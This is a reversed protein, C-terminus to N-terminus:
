GRRVIRPRVLVIVARFRRSRSAKRGAWAVRPALRPSSSVPRPYSSPASFRRHGGATKGQRSAQGDPHFPLGNSPHPSSSPHILHASSFPASYIVEGPIAAEGPHFAGAPSIRRSPSPCSSCCPAVPVSHPSSHSGCAMGEDREEGQRAQRTLPANSSHGSAIGQYTPPPHRKAPHGAPRPSPPM